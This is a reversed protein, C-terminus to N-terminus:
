PILVNCDIGASAHASESFSNSSGREKEYEETSSISKLSFDADCHMNKRVDGIFNWYGQMITPSQKICYHRFIQNRVAPDGNRDFPHAMFPDYGNM